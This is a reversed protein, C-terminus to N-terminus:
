ICWADVQQLRTAWKQPPPPGPWVKSPLRASHDQGPAPASVPTVTSGMPAAGGMRAHTALASMLTRRVTLAQGARMVCASIDLSQQRCTYAFAIFEILM